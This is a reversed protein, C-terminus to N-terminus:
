VFFNFPRFILLHRGIDNCCRGSSIQGTCPQILMMNRKNGVAERDIVLRRLIVAPLFATRCDIRPHAAAVNQFGGHDILEDILIEEPLQERLILVHQKQIHRCLHRNGKRVAQSGSFSNAGFKRVTLEADHIGAANRSTEAKEDHVTNREHFVAAAKFFHNGPSFRVLQFNGM